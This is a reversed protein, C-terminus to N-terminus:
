SNVEYVLFAIPLIHCLSWAFQPYFRYCLQSAYHICYIEFVFFHFFLSSYFIRKFVSLTLFICYVDLPFNWIETLIDGQWWPRGLVLGQLFPGGLQVSWWFQVCKVVTFRTLYLWQSKHIALSSQVCLKGEVFNQLATWWFGDVQCFWHASIAVFIVVFYLLVMHQWSRGVQGVILYEAREDEM